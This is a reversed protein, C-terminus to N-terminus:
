FVSPDDEDLAPANVPLDVTFVTGQGHVSEVSVRGSLSRTILSYVISLGLGSGGQGLRTTFFPDFVRSISDADIGRGYDRVQMRIWDTGRLEVAIDIAGGSAGGYGHLMANEMLNTLVQGVVGPYGNMEVQPPSQVQVKIGAMSLRPSLLVQNEHIVEDLFFKRRRNSTQDVAVQKFSRVLDSARELSRDILQAGERVADTCAMIESRSVKGGDMMQHMRRATELLTSAALRANGVPTNLEHAIGAVMAGLAAMKGSQVLENQTSELKHVTQEIEANAAQLHSTREQVRQELLVNSQKLLNERQILTLAMARLSDDVDSLERAVLPQQEPIRGEQLARANDSLMETARAIRLTFLYLVVFTLTLILGTTLTTLLVITMIPGYVQSQPRMVLVRWDLKGVRVDSASVLWQTDDMTIATASKSAMARVADVGMMSSQRAMTGKSDAIIQGRGDIILVQVGHAADTEGHKQVLRSLSIEMVLLAGGALPSTVAITSQDTVASLFIPSIRLDDKDAAKFVDSQSLDLGMRDGSETHAPDNLSHAVMYVHGQRDLIYASEAAEHGDALQAITSQALTGGAGPHMSLQRAAARVSAMTRLLASQTSQGINDALTANMETQLGELQPYLIMRSIAFGLLVQLVAILAVRRFMLQRLGPLGGHPSKMESM